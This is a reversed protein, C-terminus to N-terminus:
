KVVFLWRAWKVADNKHGPLVNPISDCGFITLKRNRDMDFYAVKKGDLTWNALCVAVDGDIEQKYYVNIFYRDIPVTYTGYATVPLYQGLADKPPDQYPLWWYSGGYWLYANEEFDYGTGILEISVPEGAKNVVELDVNKLPPGAAILFSSVLMVTLVLLMVKKM